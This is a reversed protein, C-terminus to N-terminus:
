RQPAAVVIIHFVSPWTMPKTIANGGLGAALTEAAKQYEPAFYVTNVKFDARPAIDMDAIKYGMGILKKSMNRALPLKGNGSLVKLKLAKLNPEKQPVAPKGVPTKKIDDEAIPAVEQEKVPGAAEEDVAEEQEAKKLQQLEAKLADLEKNLDKMQENLHAISAKSRQIDEQSRRDVFGLTACGSATLCFVLSLICLIRMLM